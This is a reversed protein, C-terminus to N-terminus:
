RGGAVSVAISPPIMPSREEIVEKPQMMFAKIALM